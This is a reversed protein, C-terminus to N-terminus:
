FIVEEEEQQEFCKDCYTEKWSPEAGTVGTAIGNEVEHQTGTVFEGCGDCRWFDDCNANTCEWQDEKPDLRTAPLYHHVMPSGCGDCRIETKAKM